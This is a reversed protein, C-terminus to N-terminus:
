TDYLAAFAAPPRQPVGPLVMVILDSISSPNLQGSLIKINDFLPSSIIHDLLSNVKHTFSLPHDPFTLLPFIAGYHRGQWLVVRVRRALPAGSTEAGNLFSDWGRGTMVGNGAKMQVLFASSSSIQSKGHQLSM